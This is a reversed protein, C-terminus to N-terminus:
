YSRCVFDGRPKLLILLRQSTKFQGLKADVCVVVKPVQFYSLAELSIVAIKKYLMLEDSKLPFFTYGTSYTKSDIKHALIKKRLTSKSIFLQAVFVILERYQILDMTLLASIM